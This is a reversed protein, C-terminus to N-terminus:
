PTPPPPPPPAPDEPSEPNELLHQQMYLPLKEPQRPFMEALKILNLFLMLQLNERALKKGEQTVTKAGTTAESATYLATWQTKLNTAATVTAPALSAANAQAAALLTGLHSDLQDDRCTGFVTRGEPLAEILKPSNAGFAAIFGAEIRKVEPPVTEARFADKAAKAAMRAGLRTQDQTVCDAVQALAPTTAALRDTLEGGPNNAVTRQVHDTTFAVLEDMSINPDDFPNELFSTLTRM